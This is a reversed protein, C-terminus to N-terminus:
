EFITAPPCYLPLDLISTELFDHKVAQFIFSQDDYVNIIFTYNWNVSIERNKM